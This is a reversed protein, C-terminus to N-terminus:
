RGFAKFIMYYKMFKRVYKREFVRADIEHKNNRYKKRNFTVDEESYSLESDKIKFINSQMWHRFEHLFHLFIVFKKQKLSRATYDPDNCLFIKDTGFCYGSSSDVQLTITILKYKKPKYIDSFLASIAQSLAVINIKNANLWIKTKKTPKLNIIWM